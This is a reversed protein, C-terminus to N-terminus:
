VRQSKNDFGLKFCALTPTYRFGWVLSLEVEAMKGLM